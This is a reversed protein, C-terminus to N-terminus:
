LIVGNKLEFQCSEEDLIMKLNDNQSNAWSQLCNQVKGAQSLDLSEIALQLFSSSIYVM